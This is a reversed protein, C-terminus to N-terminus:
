DVCRVTTVIRQATEEWIHISDVGSFVMPATAVVNGPPVDYRARFMLLADSSKAYDRDKVLMLSKATSSTNEFVFSYAKDRPISISEPCNHLQFPIRTPYGHGGWIMGDFRRSWIFYFNNPYPVKVSNMLTGLYSLGGGVIMPVFDEACSAISNEQLLIAGQPALHEKVASYFRRHLRWNEVVTRLKYADPFIHNGSEEKFHPPNGVVLDWKESPPIDDLNDSLYVSVKDEIGNLKATRSAADVALPNVDALCLSDCLGNALLSYGIYGPGSCWEFVRGVQGFLNRVMYVYQQGFATGGGDLEEAHCVTLGHL